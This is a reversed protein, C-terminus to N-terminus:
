GLHCMFNVGVADIPWPLRPRVLAFGLSGRMGLDEPELPLQAELLRPLVRPSGGPGPPGAMHDSGPGRASPGPTEAEELDQCSCVFGRCVGRSTETHM